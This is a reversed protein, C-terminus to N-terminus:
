NQSKQKKREVYRLLDEKVGNSNRVLKSVYEWLFNQMIRLGDFEFTYSHSVKFVQNRVIMSESFSSLAMWIPQTYVPQKM